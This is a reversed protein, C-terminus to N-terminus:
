YVISTMQLHHRLQDTLQLLFLKYVQGLVFLLAQDWVDSVPNPGSLRPGSLPVFVLLQYALGRRSLGCKSPGFRCTWVPHAMRLTCTDNM